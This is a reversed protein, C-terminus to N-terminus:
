RAGEALEELERDPGEVFDQGKGDLLNLGDGGQADIRCHQLLGEDFGASHADVADYRDSLGQIHVDQPISVVHKFGEGADYLLSAKRHIEKVFMGVELCM